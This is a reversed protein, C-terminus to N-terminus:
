KEFPYGVLAFGSGNGFVIALYTVIMQTCARHTTSHHERQSRLNRSFTRFCHSVSSFRSLLGPCSYMANGSLGVTASMEYRGNEMGKM